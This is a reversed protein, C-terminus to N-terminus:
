QANYAPYSGTSMVNETPVFPRTATTRTIHIYLEAQTDSIGRNSTMSASSLVNLGLPEATLPDTTIFVPSVNLSPKTVSTQTPTEERYPENSHSDHQQAQNDTYGENQLDFQSGFQSADHAVDVDNLELPRIVEGNNTNNMLKDTRSSSANTSETSSSAGATMGRNGTSPTAAKAKAKRDSNGPRKSAVSHSGPSSSCSLSEVSDQLDKVNQKVVRLESKLSVVGHSRDSENREVAMKIDVVAKKATSSLSSLNSKLSLVSKVNQMESSRTTEIAVLKQKLTLIDAKAASM